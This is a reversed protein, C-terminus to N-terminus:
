GKSEVGEVVFGILGVVFEIERKVSGIQGVVPEMTGLEIGTDNGEISTVKGKTDAYFICGITVLDLTPIKLGLAKTEELDM